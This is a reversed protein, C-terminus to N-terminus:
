GILNVGRYLWYLMEWPVEKVEWTSSLGETIVAELAERSTAFMARGQGDVAWQGNRFIGFLPPSIDEDFPRVSMKVDHIRKDRLHTQCYLSYAAHAQVVAVSYYETYFVVGSNNVWWTGGGEDECWVGYPAKTM